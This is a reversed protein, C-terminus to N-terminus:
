RVVLVSSSARHSLAHAVSGLLLRDISKRAHSGVVLLDAHTSEQGIVDPPYGALVRHVPRYRSRELSHALDRVLETALATATESWIAYSPFATSPDSLTPTPVVSLVTLDVPTTFPFRHLWDRLRVADDPGEVAVLVTSVHELPRKVIL